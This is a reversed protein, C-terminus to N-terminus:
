VCGPQEHRPLALRGNALRAPHASALPIILRRVGDYGEGRAAILAMRIILDHTVLAVAGRWPTRARLSALFDHLRASMEALSEGGTPRAAGVDRKWRRLEAPWLAKVEAQTLGEWEGYALEILREDFM